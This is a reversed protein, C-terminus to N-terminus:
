VVTISIIPTVYIYYHLLAGIAVILCVIGMALFPNFFEGPKVYIGALFAIIFFFATLFMFIVFVRFDPHLGWFLSIPISLVVTM